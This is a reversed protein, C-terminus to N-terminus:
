SITTSHNTRRRLAGLALLGSGLLFLTAPEPAPVAPDDTVQKKDKDWQNLWWIWEATNPVGSRGRMSHNSHSDPGGSSDRDFVSFHDLNVIFSDVRVDRGYDPIRDADSSFGEHMNGSADHARIGDAHAPAVAFVTGAFVLATLLSIKKLVFAGSQTSVFLSSSRSRIRHM